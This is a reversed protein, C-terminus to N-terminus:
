KRRIADVIAVFVPASLYIGGITRATMPKNYLLNRLGMHNQVAFPIKRLYNYEVATSALLYLGVASKLYRFENSTFFVGAKDRMSKTNQYEKKTAIILPEIFEQYMSKETVKAIENKKAAASSVAVKAPAVPGAANIMYSILLAGIIFRKM